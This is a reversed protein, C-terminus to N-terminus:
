GRLGAAELAERRDAYMRLRTLTGGSVTWLHAFVMETRAGSAKATGSQRVLGVVEDGAGRLDEVELSYDDWTGIWGELFDRVEQHGHYEPKEPWGTYTSMELVFDPAFVAWLPEGTEIFHEYAGRVLEVNTDPMRETQPM